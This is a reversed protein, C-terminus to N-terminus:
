IETILMRIDKLYIRGSFAIHPLEYFQSEKPCIPKYLPDAVIIETDSLAAEMAEEGILATDKNCLLSNEIQLPCLVRVSQGYQLEIAKALSGMIVPEGILTIDAPADTRNQLYLVVPQLPQHHQNHQLREWVAAEMAESLLRMYRNGSKQVTNNIHDKDGANIHDAAKININCSDSLHQNKFNQSLTDSSDTKQIHEFLHLDVPTGIVYPTGFREYLVRAAELGVSSVVLNVAARGAQSLTELNDAMAWTSIVQWGYGELLATMKQVGEIPGFDLPTVGLLNVTRKNQVDWSIHADTFYRAIKALALGAGYVYDHMGNTPIFFTCIGTDAEIIKAIAEFDTGNMYPIPSSALAIFKPKLTGAATEINNILHEDNGMIADMETLGSIFILSDMDYWRIEDHTNYTSNCGSPDHMVTMGGLEYLASCVGSVDATYTPIIRYSQKM